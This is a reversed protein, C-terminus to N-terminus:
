MYVDIYSRVRFMKENYSVVHVVVVVSRCRRTEVLPIRLFSYHTKEEGEGPDPSNRRRKKKPFSYYDTM